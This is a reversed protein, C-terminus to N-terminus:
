STSDRGERKKKQRMEERMALGGIASALCFLLARWHSSWLEAILGARDYPWWWLVEPGSWKAYVPLLCIIAITMALVRALFATATAGPSKVGILIGMIISPLGVDFLGRVERGNRVDRYSYIRWAISDRHGSILRHAGVEVLSIAILSLWLVAIRKGQNKM